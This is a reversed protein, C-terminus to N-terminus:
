RSLREIVAPVVQAGAEIHPFHAADSVRLLDADPMLDCVEETRAPSVVRDREGAVLLTPQRVRPAFPRADFDLLPGASTALTRTSADTLRLSVHALTATLVPDDAHRAPDDFARLFGQRWREPDRRLWLLALRTLTVGVLPYRVVDRMSGPPVRVPRVPTLAPALLILRPVLDPRHLALVIAAQAGMSHAVLPAPGTEALVGALTTAYAEPTHPFGRPAPSDGWGPLDIVVAQRGARALEAPLLPWGEKMGAWGHVLVV